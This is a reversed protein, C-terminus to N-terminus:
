FRGTLIRKGTGVFAKANQVPSYRLACQGIGMNKFRPWPKRLFWAAMRRAVQESKRRYQYPQIAVLETESFAQASVVGGAKVEGLLAEGAATRAIILSRGEQETFDPYGDKGHWADAGVIDAFEGTGDACMKCRPQLHRNLIRGWAENYEMTRRAGDASEACALGPWGDGRYRLATVASPDMDMRKLMEMTGKMSPTGACMFSLLYPIRAAVAPERDMIKRVAAVDCPKGVFAFRGPRNLAATLASVPSAPAYRSGAADIIEGRTASCATENMLPQAKSARTHVVFDVKGSEVLHILIASLVGGSSGKYRVEEDTAHGAEMRVIPGWVPHYRPSQGGEKRELGIGPCVARVADQEVGTLTRLAVPRLFGSASLRMSVAQEGVAYQCAGCGTCLGANVITELTM